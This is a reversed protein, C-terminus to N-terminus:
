LPQEEQPQQKNIDITVSSQQTLESQIPQEQIPKPIIKIEPTKVILNSTRMQYIGSDELQLNYIEFTHSRNTQDITQKHRPSQGIPILMENKYWKPIENLQENEDLDVKFLISEGVHFTTQPLNLTKEKIQKPQVYLTVLHKPIPTDEIQYEYRGSDSIRLNLLSVNYTGPSIRDVVISSRKKM